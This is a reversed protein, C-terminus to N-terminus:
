EAVAAGLAISMVNHADAESKGFVKAIRGGRM